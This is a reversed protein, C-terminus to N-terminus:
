GNERVFSRTKEVLSAEATQEQKPRALEERIDQSIRGVQTFASRLDFMNFDVFCLFLKRPFGHFNQGHGSSEMQQNGPGVMSVNFYITCLCLDIVNVM